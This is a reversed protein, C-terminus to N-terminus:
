LNILISAISLIEAFLPLSLILISFKGALEIKSAISAEGADKCVDSALQTLFCIGLAKVLIGIYANPMHTYEFITMVQTFVPQASAIIIMLMSVGAALSLLMHYEPKYQKLVMALIASVIGFGIIATTNM